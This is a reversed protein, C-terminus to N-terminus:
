VPSILRKYLEQWRMDTDEPESFVSIKKLIININSIDYGMANLALFLQNIMKADRPSNAVVDLNALLTWDNLKNLDLTTPLKQVQYPVSMDVDKMDRDVPVYLFRTLFDVQNARFLKVIHRPTGAIIFNVKREILDRSFRSFTIEETAGEEVLTSIYGMTSNMVNGKRSLITQIDSLAITKISNNAYQVFQKLGGYDVGTTFKVIENERNYYACVNKIMETKGIKNPGVIFLPPYHMLISAGLLVEAEKFSFVNM